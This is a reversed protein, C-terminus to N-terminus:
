PWVGPSSIRSTAPATTSGRVRRRTAMTTRIVKKPSIRRLEKCISPRIRARLSRKTSRRQSRTRLGMSMPRSGMTPPAMNEAGITWSALRDKSITPVAGLSPEMRGPINALTLNVEGSDRRLRHSGADATAVDSRGWTSM